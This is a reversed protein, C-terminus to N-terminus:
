TAFRCTIAAADDSPSTRPRQTGHPDGLEARRIRTITAPIGPEFLSNSLERWDHYLHLHTVARTIGDSVLALRRVPEANSLAYQGTLSHSAARPDDAAIWYGDNSNRTAQEAEHLTRVRDHHDPHDYGHGDHLAHHIADRLHPAVTALRSDSHHHVEGNATQVLLASDGLVLYELADGRLRVIVATASPGHGPLRHPCLREHLTTVREIAAALADRLDRSAPQRLEAALADSLHRVFWSADHDACAKPDDHASAGDLLWAASDAADVRDESRSKGLAAVNCLELHGLSTSFSRHIQASDAVPQM